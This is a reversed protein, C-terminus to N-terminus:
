RFFGEEVERMEGELREILEALRKTFAERREAAGSSARERAATEMAEADDKLAQQKRELAEIRALHEEIRALADEGGRSSMSYAEDLAATMKSLSALLEELLRAAKESDGAAVAERLQKMLDAVRDMDVDEAADSNLFEEPLADMMASLRRGLEAMEREMRALAEELAAMTEADGGSKRLEDLLGRLDDQRRLLDESADVLSELKQNYVLADLALVDSEHGEVADGRFRLWAERDAGDRLLAEQRGAQEDLRGEVNALTRLAPSEAEEGEGGGYLALLARLNSLVGHLGQLTAEGYARLATTYVPPKELNMELHDALLAVLGDLVAREMEVLRERAEDRGEIRLRRRESEGWKPGSVADTDSARVFLEAEEGSRLGMRAVDFLQRLSWTRGGGAGTDFPYTAERGGKLLVLEARSLGFDDEASAEVKLADLERLTLDGAPFLLAVKPAADEELAIPLRESRVERGRGDRGAIR